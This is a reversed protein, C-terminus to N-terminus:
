NKPLPTRCHPCEEKRDKEREWEWTIAQAIEDFIPNYDDGYRHQNMGELASIIIEIDSKM